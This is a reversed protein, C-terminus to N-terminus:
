AICSVAAVDAASPLDVIPAVPATFANYAASGLGGVAMGLGFGATFAAAEPVLQGVVAMLLGILLIAWLPCLFGVIAGLILGVWFTWDSLMAGFGTEPWDCAMDGSSCDNDYTDECTKPTGFPDDTETPLSENNIDYWDWSKGDHACTYTKDSCYMNLCEKSDECALSNPNLWNWAGNDTGAIAEESDEWDTRRCVRVNGDSIGAKIGSDGDYVYWCPTGPGCVCLNPEDTRDVLGDCDNDMGDNCIEARFRYEPPTNEDCGLCVFYYDRNGEVYATVCEVDEITIRMDKNVDACNADYYPLQKKEILMILIEDVSDIMLDGNLDGRIDQCSELNYIKTCKAPITQGFSLLTDPDDLDMGVFNYLCMLDEETLRKDMDFDCADLVQQPTSVGKGIIEWIKRLTSTDDEEIFNNGDLDCKLPTDYNADFCIGGNFDGHWKKSIVNTLCQLDQEDVDSDLDYDACKAYEERGSRSLPLIINQLIDLDDIDLTEDGDLNGKQQGNCIISDAIIGGAASEFCQVISSEPVVILGSKVDSVCKRVDRMDTCGGSVETALPCRGSKSKSVDAVYVREQDVFGQDEAYVGVNYIGEDGPASFRATYKGERNDWILSKIAGYISAKFITMGVVPANDFVSEMSVQFDELPTLIKKDISPTLLLSDSLTDSRFYSLFNGGYYQTGKQVLLSIVVKYEGKFPVDITAEWVGGVLSMSGEFSSLIVDGAVFYVTMNNSVMVFDTSGNLTINYRLDIPTLRDVPYVPEISLSGSSQSVEDVELEIPFTGVVGNYTAQIILDYIGSGSPADAVTIWDSAGFPVQAILFSALVVLVKSYTHVKAAM